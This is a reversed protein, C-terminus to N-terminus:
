RMRDLYALIEPHPELPTYDNLMRAYAFAVSPSSEALRHVTAIVAQRHVRPSKSAIMKSVAEEADLWQPPSLREEKATGADDIKPTSRL